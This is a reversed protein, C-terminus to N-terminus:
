KNDKAYKSAYIAFLILVAQIVIVIMLAVVTLTGEFAKWVAWAAILLIAVVCAWVWVIPNPVKLWSSIAILRELLWNFTGYTLDLVWDLFGGLFPSKEKIWSVPMKATTYIWNSVKVLIGLVFTAISSIRTAM